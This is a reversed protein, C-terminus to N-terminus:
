GIMMLVLPLTTLRRSASGAQRLQSASVSMTM